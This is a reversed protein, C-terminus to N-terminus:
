GIRIGGVRLVTDHLFEWILSPYAKHWEPFYRMHFCDPIDLKLAHEVGLFLDVSRQFHGRLISYLECLHMM